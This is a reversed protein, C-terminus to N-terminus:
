LAPMPPIAKEAAINACFNELERVGILFKALETRKRGHHAERHHAPCLCAVNEISDDGGDALFKIHHVEVYPEGDEGVFLEHGCGPAECRRKARKRAVAVVLPDREFMRSTVTTLSPRKERNMSHHRSRELLDALNESELREAAEELSDQSARSDELGNSTRDTRWFRTFERELREVDLKSTLSNYFEHWVAEDVISKATLGEREDRPDLARFNMIKNYICAIPRGILGSVVAIPSEAFRSIPAGFTQNYAWLCAVSEAHSFNKGTRDSLATLRFALSSEVKFNTSNAMRLNPLDRLIPDEELWERQLVERRAAVRKLRLCVRRQKKPGDSDSKWFPLSDLTDPFDGVTSSIVAEAVVGAIAGKHGRNRWLFVKDNIAIESEYRTVVWLFKEPWTALYGDIDFHDPNGQFIWTRM